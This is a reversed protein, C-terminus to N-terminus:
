QFLEADDVFGNEANDAAKKAKRHLYILYKIWEGELYSRWNLVEHKGDEMKLYVDVRFDVSDDAYIILKDDEFRHEYYELDEHIMKVRRIGLELAIERAYRRYREHDAMKRKRIVDSDQDELAFAQKVLAKFKADFAENHHYANNNAENNDDYLFVAEGKFEAYYLKAGNPDITRLIMIQDDRFIRDESTWNIETYDPFDERIINRGLYKLICDTKPRLNPTRPKKIKEM